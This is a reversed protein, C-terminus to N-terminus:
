AKLTMWSVSRKKMEGDGTQQATPVKTSSPSRQLRCSSDVLVTNGASGMDASGMDAGPIGPHSDSGRDAITGSRIGSALESTMDSRAAATCKKVALKCGLQQVSM